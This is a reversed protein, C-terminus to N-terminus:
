RISPAGPPAGPGSPLNPCTREYPRGPLLATWESMSMNRNVLACGTQAWSSFGPDWLRANRDWSSSAVFKSDPTFAVGTVEANHGSLTIPPSQTSAVDWVRVTRDESGSALLRGDPSFAVSRVVDTHGSLPAGIRKGTAADWLLVNNDSGGSALVRGDPSFAVGYVPGQHGTLPGVSRGSAPNWIRVTGDASASAISGDPGFAISNVADLHNLQPVTHHERSTVSLIQVSGDDVGVAVHQGDPSFAVDTM